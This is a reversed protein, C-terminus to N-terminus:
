RAAAAPLDGSLHSSEAPKFRIVVPDGPSHIRIYLMDRTLELIEVRYKHGEETIVLQGDRYNWTGFAPTAYPSAMVLTGDSLFVRLEGVAIQESEAVTWVKNIFSAPAQTSATEAPPANAPPPDTAPAGVVCGATFIAVAIARLVRMLM